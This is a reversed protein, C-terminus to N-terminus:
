PVPPSEHDFDVHCTPYGGNCVRFNTGSGYSHSMYLPIGYRTSWLADGGGPSNFRNSFFQSMYDGGPHTHYGASAGTPDLRMGGNGGPYPRTYSYGKGNEVITGGIELGYKDSIPQVAGLVEKAAADIANKGNFVRSTSITGDAELDSIAIRAGAQRQSLSRNSESSAGALSVYNLSDSNAAESGNEINERGQQGGIGGSSSGSTVENLGASQFYNSLGNSVAERDSMLGGCVSGAVTTSGDDNQTTTTTVTVERQIRSGTREVRVMNKEVEEKAYGTPDVGSLPNNLVYSYPNIAQSNGPEVIFPDVSLFRGLNYDYGRGNMHIFADKIFKHEFNSHM